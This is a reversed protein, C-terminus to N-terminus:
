WTKQMASLNKVVSSYPFSWAQSEWESPVLLFNGKWGYLRRRGRALVSLAWSAQTTSPLFFICMPREAAGPTGDCLGRLGHDRSPLQQACGSQSSRKGRKGCLRPCRTVRSLSGWLHPPASRWSMQSSWGIPFYPLFSRPSSAFFPPLFSPSLSPPLFSCVIIVSLMERNERQSVSCVSKLSCWGAGAKQEAWRPRLAVDANM